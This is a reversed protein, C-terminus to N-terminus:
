RSERDSNLSDTSSPDIQRRRKRLREVLLAGAGGLGLLAYQLPGGFDFEPAAYAGKKYGDEDGGKKGGAFASSALVFFLSALFFVRIAKM